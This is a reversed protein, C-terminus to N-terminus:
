ALGTSRRRPGLQPLGSWASGEPFHHKQFGLWFLAKCLGPPLQIFGNSPSIPPLSERQPSSDQTMAKM